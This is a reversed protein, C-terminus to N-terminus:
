EQKGNKEETSKIVDFALDVLLSNDNLELKIKARCKRRDVKQIIGELGMMPGSIVEIRNDQNFIVKSHEIIEGFSLFHRLIESDHRSLPQVNKNDKLFRYFGPTRRIIWHLESDIEDGCYFIYGPYLPKLNRSVVGGKRESLRRRPWIIDRCKDESYGANKMKLKVLRIFNDEKGTRVQVAYYNM